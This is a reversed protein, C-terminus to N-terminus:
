AEKRQVWATWIEQKFGKGQNEKQYQSNDLVTEDVDLVVGWPGGYAKKKSEVAQAALAYTQRTIARYEASNRVWHIEKAMPPGADAPASDGPANVQSESSDAHAGETASCAVVAFSLAAVSIASLVALSRLAIM